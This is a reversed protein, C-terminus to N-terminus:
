VGDVLYDIDDVVYDVNYMLYNNGDDPDSPNSLNKYIKYPQNTITMTATGNTFIGAVTNGSKSVVLFREGTSIIEIVDERFLELNFLTGTGDFRQNVNSWTVTGTGMISAYNNYSSYEESIARIINYAELTFEPYFYDETITLVRNSYTRDVTYSDNVTNDTDHITITVPTQGTLVGSTQGIESAFQTGTGLILKRSGFLEIPTNGLDGISFGALDDIRGDNISLLGSGLNEQIDKELVIEIKSVADYIADFDSLDLIIGEGNNHIIGYEFQVGLDSAQDIVLNTVVKGFLKTGAPHVLNEVTERYDALGVGSQIEYSFEQYYFNDQLYKNSSLHGDTNLWVGPETVVGESQITGIIDGTGRIKIFENQQFDRRISYLYLRYTKIGLDTLVIINEVRATAGSTMGEIEVVSLMDVTANVPLVDIRKGVYWKGDSARLIDKGPYYFNIETNFLIRFLLKYSAETGRAKYFALINKLLMRQDVKLNAPIGSLFENRLFDLFQDPITDPDNFDQLRRSIDTVNGEQEMWTYYYEIFQVLLEGENRFRNPFQEEIFLSINKELM